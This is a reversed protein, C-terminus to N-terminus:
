GGLVFAVFSRLRAPVSDLVERADALANFARCRVESRLRSWGWPTRLARLRVKRMLPATEVIRNLFADAHSPDLIGASEYSLGSLARRARRRLREGARKAAERERADPGAFADLGRYDIRFRTLSLRAGLNERPDAAVYLTALTRPPLAGLNRLFRLRDRANWGEVEGDELDFLRVKRWSM